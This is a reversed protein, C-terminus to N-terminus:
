HEITEVPEDVRVFSKGKPSLWVVSDVGAGDHNDPGYSFVGAVTEAERLGEIADRLKSRDADDGAAELARAFLTVGAYGIVSYVDPEYGPHDRKLNAIAEEQRPLPSAPDVLGVNLWHRLISSGGAAKLNGETPGTVGSLVPLNMGLQGANKLALGTNPTTGWVFLAQPRKARLKTLQTTVDSANPEMEESGVVQLGSKEILEAGQKGYADTTHLVAIREIGAKKATDAAARVEVEAALIVRFLWPSIPNTIEHTTNPAIVPVQERELLPKFALTSSGWTSGLIGMLGEDRVLANFGSVAANPNGADDHVVLELKRGNVGGAANIADVASKAGDRQHQGPQTQAGSLSALMGIKYTSGGDSGSDSGGCAALGVATVAALAVAAVSRGARSATHSM